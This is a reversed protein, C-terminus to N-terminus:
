GGRGRRPVLRPLGADNARQNFGPISVNVIEDLEQSLQRLDADFRDTWEVQAQTPRATVGGIAGRLSSIKGQLQTASRYGGLESVLRLRLGELAADIAAAETRLEDGAGARDLEEALPAIQEQLSAITAVAANAENNMRSLRIMAQQQAELDPLSVDLEPDLRVAVPQTTEQGAVALRVAYTGPLVRVGGSFGGFGGGRGGSRADAPPADGPLDMDLGWGIRNIGVESTARLTRITEGSGDEITLQAGAAAADDDLYYSITASSGTTAGHFARDALFPKTFRGMFRTAQPPEFLYAGDAVAEALEQIPTVDDLIWISRGHTGVVLDNDRPHVVIDRVGVPPFNAGRISFWSDGGNISAWVGFESGLYLVDPNRPDERIVHLYGFEPLNNALSTWSEGYDTTKYVYPRRDNSRHRDFTAYATAPDVRSAEVRSVWSFPPLGEINATVDAWSAGGNRTVQVNGDDTGVWIVDPADPAEAITIITCHYEASTNDFTIAGGSPGIKELDNTTLDPSIEAWSQGGDTTRFLVNSGFYVRRSDNPSMHIPSNWNFRYPHDGAASGRLSVPYPQISQKEGSAVDVRVINGYHANTYVINHDTPDIQTYYGDGFHIIMWDDNLIGPSNRTDSPGCWIGNDQLGGCVYYPDRMDVGIQYFQGLPIVNPYQWTAGRDFSLYVGGDNGEIIRSPDLPDIWMAHHDPHVDNGMGRFTRGGDESVQMSGSLAYVRNPDATDVRLDSFYFGRSNIGRSDSVMQWTKGRDASRWLEGPAQSEIMAYVIDADSPAVQVGIRGILGEPLGNGEIATLETWTDGGDTSRYLGSGPGGSRFHYAVRRFDYMAAYLIRPNEPDMALDAAGTNEDVYLIKEWTEGGDTSRFVGREENAGWEHGLAAVYVTDPDTPHVRIRSIKESDELGLLTWSEGADTSKYVGRGVSASNRPNGEGTGVYVVNVDTPALAIAGISPIGIDDFIPEFTTGGNTTKFIGGTATAWYFTLADGPIGAVDTTRGGMIAPGISRWELRALADSSVAQPLVPGGGYSAGAPVAAPLAVSIPTVVLLCALIVARRSM